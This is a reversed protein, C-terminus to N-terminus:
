SIPMFAPSTFFNRMKENYEELEEKSKIGRRAKESKKFAEESRAIVHNWLKDKLAYNWTEPNNRELSIVSM